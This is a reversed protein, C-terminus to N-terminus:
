SFQPKFGDSRTWRKRSPDYFANGPNDINYRSIDASACPISIGFFAVLEPRGVYGYHQLLFDIMRLRQEIAYTLPMTANAKIAAWAADHMGGLSNLIGECASRSAENHPHWHQEIVDIVGSLLYAYGDRQGRVLAFESENQLLELRLAETQRYLPELLEGMVGSKPMPDTLAEQWRQAAGKCGDDQGAWFHANAEDSRAVELDLTLREIQDQLAQM